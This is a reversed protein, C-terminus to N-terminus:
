GIGVRWAENMPKQLARLYVNAHAFFILLAERYIQFQVFLSVRM